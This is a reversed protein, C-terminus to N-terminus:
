TFLQLELVSGLLAEYFIFINIVAVVFLLGLNALVAIQKGLFRGFLCIAVASLLLYFNLLYM